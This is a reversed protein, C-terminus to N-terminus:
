TKAKNKIEKCVKNNKMNGKNIAKMTCKYGITRIDMVEIVLSLGFVIKENHVNQSFM